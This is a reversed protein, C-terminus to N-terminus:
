WRRRQAESSCGRMFKRSSVKRAPVVSASTEMGAQPARPPPEVVVVSVSLPTGVSLGPGMSVPAGGMSVPAGGMSVPAGGTSVPVGGTSVPVGGMSVPAGGVQAEGRITQSPTQTSTRVSMAWQPDHEREQLVPCNQEAPVHREVESHVAGRMVQPLLQMSMVVSTKLQPAHLRRQPSPWVQTPLRQTPPVGVQGEGVMSQPVRQMLTLLSGALQPAQPRAQAEPVVQLLPEHTAIATPMAALPGHSVSAQPGVPSSWHVLANVLPPNQVAKQEVPVVAVSCPWHPPAPLVQTACGGKASM